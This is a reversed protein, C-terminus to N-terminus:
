PRPSLQLFILSLTARATEPTKKITIPTTRPQYTTLTIPANM